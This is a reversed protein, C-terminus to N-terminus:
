SFDTQFEALSGSFETIDSNIGPSLNASFYSHYGVTYSTWGYRSAASTPNLIFEAGDDIFDSDDHDNLGWEGISVPKSNAAALAVVPGFASFTDSAGSSTDYHDGGIFDWLSANSGLFVELQALTSTGTNCCFDFLLDPNVAKMAPIVLATAAAFQTPTNSNVGKGWPFWNGDFEWGLRCITPTGILNSALNEFHSLNAAVNSLGTANPTLNVGLLLTVGPPMPDPSFGGITGWTDGTCYTSYGTLTMTLRSALSVTSSVSGTYLGQILTLPPSASATASLENSPLSPGAGDVQLLTYFYETGGVISTSDTYSTAGASIGTVLSTETGSSTSRQLTFSSTPTSGTTGATWSLAVQGVGGVAATLTPAGPVVPTVTTANVENSQASNGIANVAILTYFYETSDAVSTTDTYSTASSSIGTIHNTETGTATSRLLVFTEIASGGDAGATWHVVVQGTGGTASTMTPADPVTPASPTASSESSASSSGVGNIAIVQYWYETGNVATTDIYSLASGSLGTVLTTESGSATGRLITNSVLASGGTRAPPAWNVTVQSDGADLSTITPALPTTPTPPTGGATPGTAVVVFDLLSTVCCRGHAGM